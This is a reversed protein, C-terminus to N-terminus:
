VTIIGVIGGIYSYGCVLGLMHCSTISVTSIYNYGEIGGVYSYGSISGMVYSNNIKATALLGCGAIGGIYKYGNVHVNELGLNKIQGGAGIYGFLGVYERKLANINLNSITHDNGDFIGKFQTGQFDTNTSIDPAIVAQTFSLGNLDIDEMLLFSKDWDTSNNTIDFWNGLDEIKYPTIVGDGGAYKTTKALMIHVPTLGEYIMTGSKPFTESVIGAPISLDYVFYTDSLICNMNALANVAQAETLGKINPVTILNYVEWALKPYGNEPMVWDGSKSAGYVFSWYTELYTEINKMEITLKGIGGYSTAQGSTEVDWFSMTISGINYGSLGGVYNLGAVSGASYCSTIYASSGNYGVLGGSYNSTGVVSGTAYCSTVMSYSNNGVLGGVSTVGHVSGTAYCYAITEANEGVLGGISSTGNVSSTSHCYLLSGCNIGVLGGVKIGKSASGIAYCSIIAIWNEGVLGGVANDGTISCLAYCSNIVSSFDNEGIIGGVYNVGDVSGTAYCDKLIGADNKGVIGGVNNRGTLILNEMGLNKVLGNAGIYGFLGIYDNTLANITLNSIKHRNGEFIGTFPSGQFYSYSDNTTDPAIIASTHSQGVMNIDAMMIFHKSYDATTAGLTLLDAKNAIQYPNALTGDGGSYGFSISSLM